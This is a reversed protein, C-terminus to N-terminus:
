SPMPATKPLQALFTTGEESGSNVKIQGKHALAIQRCIYLGLGVSGNPRFTDGDPLRVMPDFLTGIAERPITKGHNHVAITIESGGDRVTTTIPQECTGHQLANSLLNSILQRMRTADWTGELHGDARVELQCDPATARIEEVVERAIAGANCRAPYIPMACGMRTSTFDLLDGLMKSMADSCRGIGAAIERTEKSTDTKLLVDSYIKMSYLPQRLDHGLIALFMRRSAEVRETFASTSAAVLQDLAENFRGMDDIQERHAVPLSQFWLRSVSARLARFEAVMRRIDFGDNVRALAHGIAAKDLGSADNGNSGESKTKQEEADQETAMDTAVARLMIEADNRLAVVGPEPGEWALRAFNEWETLIPEMNELIFVGLRTV